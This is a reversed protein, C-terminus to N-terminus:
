GAVEVDAAQDDAVPYTIADLAVGLRDAMKKITPGMPPQDYETEIRCLYSASIGVDQAFDKQSIGYATRLERIAAGNIRRHAM